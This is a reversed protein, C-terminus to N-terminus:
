PKTEFFHILEETPSCKTQLAVLVNLTHTPFLLKLKKKYFSLMHKKKNSNFYKVRMRWLVVSFSDLIFAM